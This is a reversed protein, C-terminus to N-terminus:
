SDHYYLFLMLDTDNARGVGLAERMGLVTSRCCSGWAKYTYVICGIAWRHVCKEPHAGLAVPLDYICGMPM